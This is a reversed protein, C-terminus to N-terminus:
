FLLLVLFFSFNLAFMCMLLYMYLFRSLSLTGTCAASLLPSVDAWVSNDGSPVSCNKPEHHISSSEEERVPQM